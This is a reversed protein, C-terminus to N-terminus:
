KKEIPRVESDFVRVKEWNSKNEDIFKLHEPHDSYKDHFGKNVFVLHLAVDWDQDNVDRKFDKGRAGTSFYVTGEHISLYKKCAAVLKAQNEASNEKLKFFVMHGIQPKAPPDNPPDIALAMGTFTLVALIGSLLRTMSFEKSVPRTNYSRFIL